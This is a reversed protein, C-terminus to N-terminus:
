VVRIRELEINMQYNVRADSDNLLGLLWQLKHSLIKVLGYSIQMTRAREENGYNHIKSGACAECIVRREGVMMEGVGRCGRCAPALYERLVQDVLAGSVEVSDRSYRNRYIELIRKRAQAYAASELMYKSKWLMLGLVDTTGAAAVRDIAKEQEASWALGAMATAAYPERLNSM